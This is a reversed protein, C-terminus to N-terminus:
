IFVLLACAAGIIHLIIMMWFAVPRDARVLYALGSPGSLAGNRVAGIALGLLTLAFVTGLIKDVTMGNM